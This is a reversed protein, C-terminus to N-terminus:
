IKGKKDPPALSVHLHDATGVHRLTGFGMFRFYLRTVANRIETRGKTRLDLAHVYGTSKQKYHLTNPNVKLGMRKYDHAVRGMDTVLVSRDALIITGVALRIIPHLSRFENRVEDSKANKGSFNLLTLTCYAALGLACVWTKIKVGTETIRKAGFIGVFVILLYVWLVVFAAAAGFAVAAWTPWDWGHYAWTAGRILAFFPLLVIAAWKLVWAIARLIFLLIKM